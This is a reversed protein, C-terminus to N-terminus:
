GQEELAAEEDLRIEFSLDDGSLGTREFVAELLGMKASTSTALYVFCGSGIEYWGGGEKGGLRFYNGPYDNSVALLRVTAPDLEYVQSLVEVTADKWTTVAKRTGHFSYAAVKTGTFNFDDDLTHVADDKDKPVFTVEPFPWLKLFRAILYDERARLEDEGWRDHSAIWKNLFLPSDRFGDKILLKESFPRNSYKSNYATLTLNAIRDRWESHVREWDPGLERKWAETITQPMVHEVSLGHDKALMLSRVDVTEYSDGNELREFTYIRNKQRMNFFDRLRAREEFEVDDPFRTTGSKACLAYVLAGVYDGGPGCLRDAENSLNAFTKNLSNTPVECVLRRYIYSELALLADRLGGYTIVGDQARGLLAFLLPNVVNTELQAMRRLIRNCYPDKTQAMTISCYVRAYKLMDVLLSEMSPQKEAYDKFAPYVKGINPWKSTRFTLYQRIFESVDYDTYEEIPNWYKEYYSEQTKRPLGMLVYNRVKDAESLDLGTSNLSEFILQANDGDELSIDIVVLKRIAAFLEDAKIGSAVIQERFFLYNQTVKSDLIFDDEDGFLRNFAKLDNKVPKLKIKKEEPQWQDVLYDNTIKDALYPMDCSVKGERILDTLALLLISVTTLRQQGDIIINDSGESSSVISGFFHSPREEIAVRLLDDLLQKCNEKKWDYNRQYVPIIFRTDSGEMYKLLPKSNGKM